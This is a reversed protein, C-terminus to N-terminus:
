CISLIRKTIDGDAQHWSENDLVLRWVNFITEVSDLESSGFGGLGVGGLDCGIGPKSAILGSCPGLAASAALPLRHTSPWRIQFRSLHHQIHEFYLHSVLQHTLEDVGDMSKLILFTELHDMDM